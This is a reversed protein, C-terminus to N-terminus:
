RCLHFSFSLTKSLVRLLDMKLLRSSFHSLNICRAFALYQISFSSVEGLLDIQFIVLHCGRAWLRINGGNPSAVEKSCVLLTKRSISKGIVSNLKDLRSKEFRAEYACGV